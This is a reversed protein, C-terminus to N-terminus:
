ASSQRADAARREADKKAQRLLFWRIVVIGPSFRAWYWRFARRANEDTTAVRTETRLITENPGLPDVRLTWAIKVFRPEAFTRFAEPAMGRFTVNGLWPQTVAGVVIERGPREALVRWGLARVEDLLGRARRADGRAGLVIERTRFIAHVIPSGQMDADMAADLALAAPAAVRVHHREAVDFLPMLDDLLEDRDADSAAAQLRGYRTWARAVLAAYGLAAVGIAGATWGVARRVARGQRSM